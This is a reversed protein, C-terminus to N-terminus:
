RTLSRLWHEWKKSVVKWSANQEYWQRGENKQPLEFKKDFDKFVFFHRGLELPQPREADSLIVPCGFAFATMCSTSKCLLSAPCSSLYFHAGGFENAVEQPTAEGVLRIKQIRVSKKLLRADLSLMQAVGAGKGMVVVEELMQREDLYRLFRQHARITSLRLGRQGFILARLGKPPPLPAPAIGEFSSSMPMFEVQKKASTRELLKKMKPTTTIAIQSLNLIDRVIRRQFHQLYFASKWPPGWAWVEHFLTMVPALNKLHNLTQVLWFPVGRKQYGYGVYHLILASAPGLSAMDAWMGSRIKHVPFGDIDAPGKWHPDAVIFRTEFGADERLVRALKLAYDGVGDISPAIRPVM